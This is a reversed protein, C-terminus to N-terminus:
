HSMARMIMFVGLVILGIIIIGTAATVVDTRIGDFAASDILPTWAFASSPILSAFVLFMKKMNVGKRFTFEARM